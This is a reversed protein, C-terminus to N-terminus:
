KKTSLGSPYNPSYLLTKERKQLQGDKVWKDGRESLHEAMARRLEDTQKRYKRNTIQNVTEHPDKVLDFLQEEGTRLFWIYKIKGDTLACWYNEESYCTAHEMDIWRRWQPNEEETLKERLMQEAKRKNGKETLGTSIWKQKRKGNEASNLVMYYKGNKVQLSGTM